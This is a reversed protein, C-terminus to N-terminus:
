LGPLVKTPLGPKKEASVHLLIVKSFGVLAEYVPKFYVAEPSAYNAFCYPYTALRPSRGAKQLLKSILISGVM